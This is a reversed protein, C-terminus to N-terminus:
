GHSPGEKPTTPTRTAFTAEAQEARTLAQDLAAMTASLDESTDRQWARVTWLWVALMAKARLRGKIGGAEIGAGHLLWAMSGLSASALVLAAMPDFPLARLLATVGGRHTQLVDIRRMVIDFLQDRAPGDGIGALAAQDALTGFRRLLACRGPIRARALALDLGAARAAEPVSVRLWGHTAARDFAAAILARDFETDDM